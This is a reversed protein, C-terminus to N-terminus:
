SRWSRILTHQPVRDTMRSSSPLMLTEDATAGSDGIQATARRCLTLPAVASFMKFYRPNKYLDMAPYTKYGDLADAIAGLNNIWTLNYNPAAEQGMGDRSVNNIVNAQINGGELYVDGDYYNDDGSRFVWDIMEGSEPVSDLVVATYAMLSQHMGFNGKIHGYEIGKRVERLIGDEVNQRIAAATEKRNEM